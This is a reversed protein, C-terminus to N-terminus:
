LSTRKHAGSPLVCIGRWNNCDRPDDKKLIVMIIGNTKLFSKQKWCDKLM